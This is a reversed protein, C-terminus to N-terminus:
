LWSLIVPNEPYVPYDQRDEDDQRFREGWALTTGMALM